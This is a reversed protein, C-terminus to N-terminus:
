RVDDGSALDIGRDRVADLIMLANETAATDITHLLLDPDLPAEYPDDIGTFAQIEGRRAAAYMGKVDRRECEVLPTDVYVELFRAAGIRARVADRAARYPSVTACIVIGRHRVIEAAVFGIRQINLDRDARSYGLGKSLHSRVADGDLLTVTRGHQEILRAAVVATTTKGSCSLGTLWICIGDTAALGREGGSRGVPRDKPEVIDTRGSLETAVM